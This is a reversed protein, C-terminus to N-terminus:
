IFRCGLVKECAQFPVPSYLSTRDLAKALKTLSEPPVGGLTPHTTINQRKNQCESLHGLSCGRHEVSKLQL